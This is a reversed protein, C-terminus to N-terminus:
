QNFLLVNFSSPEGRQRPTVGRQVTCPPVPTVGRKVVIIGAM